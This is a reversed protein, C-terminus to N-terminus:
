KSKGESVVKLEVGELEEGTIPDRLEKVGQLLQWAATTLKEKEELNIIESVCNDTLVDGEFELAYDSGDYCELGEVNKLGYKLYLVQAKLLDFHDEGKVTKTCSALEQKQSFSLPALTFTIEGIKLKLRDSLKLIKAM